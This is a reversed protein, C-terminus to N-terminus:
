LLVLDSYSSVSENIASTTDPVMKIDIDDKTEGDEKIDDEDDVDDPTIKINNSAEESLGGQFLQSENGKYDSYALNSFVDAMDDYVEHLVNFSNKEIM